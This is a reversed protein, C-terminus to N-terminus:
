RGSKKHFADSSLYDVDVNDAQFTCTQRDTRNVKVNIEKLERIRIKSDM